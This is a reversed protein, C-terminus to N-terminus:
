CGCKFCAAADFEGVRRLHPPRSGLDPPNEVVEMVQFSTAEKWSTPESREGLLRFESFHAIVGLDAFNHFAVIRSGPKMWRAICALKSVMLKTFMLTSVFLVDADTFDLELISGQVYDLGGAVRKPLGSPCGRGGPPLCGCAASAELAAVAGRAVDCRSESLEVGTARLGALWALMALKGTGAGLDYFRDGPKAGVQWLLDLFGGPLLEGYTEAGFSSGDSRFAKADTDSIEIHRCAKWSSGYAASLVAALCGQATDTLQSEGHCLARGSYQAWEPSEWVAKPRDSPTSDLVGVPSALILAM